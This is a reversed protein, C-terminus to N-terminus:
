RDRFNEKDFVKMNESKGFVIATDGQYLRTAASPVSSIGDHYIVLIWTQLRNNLNLEQISKGDYGPGILVQEVVYGQPLELIDIADSNDIMNALRRGSDREPFTVQHVGMNMLINGRLTNAAKAYVPIGAELLIHCAILAGEFNQTIAVIAADFSKKEVIMTLQDDNEAVDIIAGSVIMDKVDNLSEEDNDIAFVEHELEYLREILGRGFRGTGVVLISKKM